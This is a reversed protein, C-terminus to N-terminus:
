FLLDGLDKLIKEQVESSLQLKAFLLTLYSDMDTLAKEAKTCHNELFELKFEATLKKQGKEFDSLSIKPSQLDQLKKLLERKIRWKRFTFKEEPQDKARFYDDFRPEAKMFQYLDTHLFQTTYYKLVEITEVDEL